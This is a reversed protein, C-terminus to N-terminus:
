TTYLMQASVVPGAVTGSTRMAAFLNTMGGFSYFFQRAVEEDFTQNIGLFRESSWGRKEIDLFWRM